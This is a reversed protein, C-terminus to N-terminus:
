FAERGSVRHDYAGTVTHPMVDPAWWSALRWQIIWQDVERRRGTCNTTRRYRITQYGTRSIWRVADQVYRGRQKGFIPRCYPAFRIPCTDINIVHGVEAACQGTITIVACEIASTWV